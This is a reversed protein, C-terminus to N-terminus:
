ENLAWNYSKYSIAADANTQVSSYRNLFQRVDGFDAAYWDFISSIKCAKASIDNENSNIFSKTQKELLILLNEKTFATNALPPCSKAGCNLAFHIRPEGFKKRIIENEIDNLSYFTKGVKIFRKDWPKGNEIDKISKIPYSELILALTSANYLNIWFVLKEEYSRSNIDSFDALQDIYAVLLPKVKKLNGYNVNGAASVNNKLLTNFVTHDPSKVIDPIHPIPDVSKVEEVKPKISPKTDEKVVIDTKNSQIADKYPLTNDTSVTSKNVIDPYKTQVVDVQAPKKGDRGPNVSTSSLPIGASESPKTQTSDVVYEENANVVITSTDVSEVLVKSTKPAQKCSIILLFIAIFFLSFLNNGM